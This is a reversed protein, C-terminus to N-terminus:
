NEGNLLMRKRYQKEELGMETVIRELSTVPVRVRLIICKRSAAFVDCVMKM